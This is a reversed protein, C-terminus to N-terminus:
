LDLLATKKLQLHLEGFVDIGADLADVLQVVFISVVTLTEGLFVFLVVICLLIQFFSLTEVKLFLLNRRAQLLEFLFLLRNFHLRQPDLELVVLDELVVDDLLGVELLLTELFM